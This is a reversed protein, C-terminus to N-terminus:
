ETWIALAYQHGFTVKGSGSMLVMDAKNTNRKKLIDTVAIDLDFADSGNHAYFDGSFSCYAMAISGKDKYFDEAGKLIEGCNMSDFFKSSYRYTKGNIFPGFDSVPNWERLMDDVTWFDLLFSIMEKKQDDAVQFYGTFDSGKITISGKEGVQFVLGYRDIDAEGDKEFWSIRIKQTDFISERLKFNGEIAIDFLCLSGSSM